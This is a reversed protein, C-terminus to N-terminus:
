GHPSASAAGRAPESTAEEAKNPKEMKLEGHLTCRPWEGVKGIVYQGGRHCEPLKGDRLFATVKGNVIPEGNTWNNELAAAHIASAIISQNNMCSAAMVRQASRAHAASVFVGAAVLIAGVIGVVIWEDRTM